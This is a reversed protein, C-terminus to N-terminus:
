EPGGSGLQGPGGAPHCCGTEEVRRRGGGLWARRSEAWAPADGERLGPGEAWLCCRPRSPASGAEETAAAGKLSAKGM